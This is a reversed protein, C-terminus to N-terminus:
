EAKTMISVYKKTIRYLDSKEIPKALYDDFGLNSYQKAYKEFTEATLMVIPVDIGLERIAQMCEIGDMKPMHYDLYIMDFQDTKLIDIAKEGSDVATVEAHVNNLLKTFVKLNLSNDDCVLIKKGTFDIEEELESSEIEVIKQPISVKFSSGEGEVSELEIKGQMLKAFTNAISLGLGVGQHSANEAMDAREFAEFISAQNEKSIGIGTDSVTITLTGDESARTQKDFELSVIIIGKETFKTANSVLKAALHKIKVVDGYLGAPLPNNPSIEVKYDIGRKLADFGLSNLYSVLSETGYNEEVVTYKGHELKSFDLVDNIIDALVIASLKVDEANKKIEVIDNMHINDENLNLVANLPTRIEHSMSALFASKAQNATEAKEKAESLEKNMDGMKYIIYSSAISLAVVAGIFSVIYNVFRGSEDSSVKVLSPYAFSLAISIMNVAIIYSCVILRTKGSLVITGLCFGLVIWIPIASNIGGLLFFMIPLIVCGLLTIVVTMTAEIKQTRRIVHIILVLFITFAGVYPLREFNRFILAVAFILSSVIASINVIILFAEEKVSAEPKTGFLLKEKVWDFFKM